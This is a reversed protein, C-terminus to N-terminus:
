HGITTVLFTRGDLPISEKRVSLEFNAVSLQKLPHASLGSDVRFASNGSDKRGAGVLRLGSRLRVFDEELLRRLYATFLRLATGAVM